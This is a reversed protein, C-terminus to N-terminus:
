ADEKPPEPMSPLPMWHTVLRTLNTLDHTLWEGDGYYTAIEAENKDSTFVLYNDDNEPLREEVSIWKPQAAEICELYGNKYGEAYQMRDYILARMLEDKNVSVGIKMLKQLVTREIEQAQKVGLDQMFVHIPSDYGSFDVDRYAGYFKWEHIDEPYNYRETKFNDSM